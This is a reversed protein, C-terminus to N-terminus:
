WEPCLHAAYSCPWLEYLVQESHELATELVVGDCRLELAGEHREVHEALVVRVLEVRLLGASGDVGDEGQQVEVSRKM